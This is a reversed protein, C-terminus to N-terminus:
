MHQITKLSILSLRNGSKILGTQVLFFFSHNQMQASKTNHSEWGSFSLPKARPSTGSLIMPAVSEVPSSMNRMFHNTWGASISVIERTQFDGSNSNEGQTPFIWIFGVQNRCLLGVDLTRLHDDGEVFLPEGPVRIGGFILFLFVFVLVLPPFLLKSSWEVKLLPPWPPASLCALCWAVHILMKTYRKM